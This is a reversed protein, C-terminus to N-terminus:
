DESIGDYNKKGEAFIEEVIKNYDRIREAKRIKKAKKEQEEFLDIMFAWLEKMKFLVNREGSSIKIYEELIDQHFAYLRENSMKNTGVIESVIGPNCILGRGIMVHKLNPFRQLLNSYDRVSNVDGNYCIPMKAEQYAIEFMDLNPTNKYFDQQIRPHIILESMPFKNYIEMLGYFEDPSDKGIRTKVSIKMDTKTFVADLFRELEDPYALFGSGKGKSVVTKSPCGINFNIEKYGLNQIDKATKLFDEAHNTLLQPIVELGQNHEVSLEKMERTSFKKEKHPVIFPTFYRNVDGFHKAYANRYVYTTIGELPALYFKM